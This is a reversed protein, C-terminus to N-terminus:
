GAPNRWRPCSPATALSVQSYQSFLSYDLFVDSDLFSFFFFFRGEHIMWRKERGGEKFMEGEVERESSFECMRVSEM